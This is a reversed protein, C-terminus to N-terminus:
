FQFLKSNLTQSTTNGVGSTTSPKNYRKNNENKHGSNIVQKKKQLNTVCFIVCNIWACLYIWFHFFFEDVINYYVIKDIIRCWIWQKLAITEPVVNQDRIKFGNWDFPYQHEILLHHIWWKCNINKILFSRFLSWTLNHYTTLRQM